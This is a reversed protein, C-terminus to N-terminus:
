FILVMEKRVMFMHLTKLPDVDDSDKPVVKCYQQVAESAQLMTSLDWVSHLKKFRLSDASTLCINLRLGGPRPETPDTLSINCLKTASDQNTDM